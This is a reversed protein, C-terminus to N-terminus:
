IQMMSRRSMIDGYTNRAESIHYKPLIVVYHYIIESAVVGHTCQLYISRANAVGGSWAKM